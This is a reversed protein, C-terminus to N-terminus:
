KECAFVFFCLIECSKECIERSQGRLDTGKLAGRFIQCFFKCPRLLQTQSGFPRCFRQPEASSKKLLSTAIHFTEASGEQLVGFTECFESSSPPCGPGTTQPGAEKRGLIMVLVPTRVLFHRNSPSADFFTVLNESLTVVNKEVYFSPM